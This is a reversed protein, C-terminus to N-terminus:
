SSDCSNESCLLGIASINQGRLVIYAGLDNEDCDIKEKAGSKCKVYNGKLSKERRKKVTVCKTVGARRIPFFLRSLMKAIQLLRNHMIEANASAITADRYVNRM